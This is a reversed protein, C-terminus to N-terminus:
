DKRASYTPRILHLEVWGSQFETAIRHREGFPSMLIRRPSIRLDVLHTKIRQLAREGIGLNLASSGTEPVYSELRLLMRGDERMQRAINTLSMEADLGLSTSGLEVPIIADASPRHPPKGVKDAIRWSELWPRERGAKLLAFSRVGSSTRETTTDGDPANGLLPKSLISSCGLSALFPVLLLAASVKSSISYSPGARTQLGRLSWRM